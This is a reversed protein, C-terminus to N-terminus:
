GSAGAVTLPRVLLAPSVLADSVSAKSGIAVLNAFLSPAKPPALVVGGVTGGRVPEALKGGRIRYGIRIEGGFSSSIPDPSAWGLQTVYIGNGAAQVLEEPSGGDGTALVLTSVGPSPAHAFRLDGSPGVASRDANGTSHTRLASAYLADYLHGGVAGREILAQASRPTGEDDYPASGVSWPYAGDDRLSLRAPGVRAGLEPAFKRLRASGSFRSGVVPLLIGSLVDTPLVIPLEGSPPPKARRVDQAYRCWDDVSAAARAPELRRFSENVWYEGPAAGEPGGFAKVALELDIRTSSFSARLGASNTLSVESLGAKVSGFSPSVGKRGRFAELLAHVYGHLAGLPDSWLQPDVVPVSAAPGGGTPLDVTRAPFEADRAVTEAEQVATAIGKASLDTSAQFGPALRDGKPRFLRVGYGEIALPGRELEIETGQLHLEFRRFREGVVDWAGKLRLQDAVRFALDSPAEPPTM